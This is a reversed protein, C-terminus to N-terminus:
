TPLVIGNMCIVAAIRRLTKFNGNLVTQLFKLGVVNIQQIDM